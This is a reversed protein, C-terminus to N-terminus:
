KSLNYVSAPTLTVRNVTRYIGGAKRFGVRLFTKMIHCNM